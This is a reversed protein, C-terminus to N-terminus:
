HQPGPPHPLDDLRAKRIVEEALRIIETVDDDTGLVTAIARARRAAQVVRNMEDIIVRRSTDEERRVTLISRYVHKEAPDRVFRPVTVAIQRVTVEIKVRRILARAQDRWREQAAEAIDWTFHGHLPSTPDRGDEIVDDVALRGERQLVVLRRDVDDLDM